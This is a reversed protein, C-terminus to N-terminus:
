TFCWTVPFSLFAFCSARYAFSQVAASPLRGTREIQLAGPKTSVLDRELSSSNVIGLDWTGYGGSNLRRSTSITRAPRFGSSSASFNSGVACDIRLQTAWASRSSPWRWSPRVVSSRSSSRRSRRSFLTRRSSRSMRFFAAAQNELVRRYGEPLPAALHAHLRRHARDAVRVVVGQALAEDRRELALQDVAGAELGLDLGPPRDELIKLAPVVWIAPRLAELGAFAGEM